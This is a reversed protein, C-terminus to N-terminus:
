CHFYNKWLVYKGETVYFEPFAPDVLGLTFVCEDLDEVDM